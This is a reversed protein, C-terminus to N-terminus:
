DRFLGWLSVWLSKRHRKKWNQRLCHSISSQQGILSSFEIHSVALNANKVMGVSIVNLWSDQIEFKQNWLRFYCWLFGRYYSNRLYQISNANKIMGSDAINPLSDQIEFKRSWILLLVISFRQTDLTMFIRVATESIHTSLRGTTMANIM